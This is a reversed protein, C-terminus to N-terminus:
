AVPAGLEEYQKLEEFTWYQDEYMHYILEKRYIGCSLLKDIVTWLYIDEHTM